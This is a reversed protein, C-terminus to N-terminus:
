LVVEWYGSRGSCWQDVGVRYWGTAPDVEYVKVTEDKLVYGVVTGTKPKDRKALGVFKFRAVFLYDPKPPEPPEPIVVGGDLRFYRRVACADGNWRNYDMYKRGSIGISPTYEATQHVLWTKVGRPLAPPGPHEPTYVFPWLRRNLYQSLWWDLDPPLDAVQLHEDVWNARSYNLPYMGTRSKCIALMSNLTKTWVWKTNTTPGAVELDLCLRDHDFDVDNGLARFFNDMQAVAPEGGYPVSYAVRGADLQKSFYTWYWQFWADQYGWSITARYAVFSIYEPNALFAVPDPRIKGDASINFRSLDNGFALNDTM